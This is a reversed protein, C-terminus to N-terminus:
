GDQSGDEAGCLGQAPEQVGSRPNQVLLGDMAARRERLEAVEEPTAARIVEYGADDACDISFRAGPGHAAVLSQVWALLDALSTVM